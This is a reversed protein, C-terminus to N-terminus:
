NGLFFHWKSKKGTYGVGNESVWQEDGFGLGGTTRRMVRSAARVAIKPGNAITATRLRAGAAPPITSSQGVMEGLSCHAFAETMGKTAQTGM